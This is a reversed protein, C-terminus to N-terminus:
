DGRSNAAVGKEDGKEDAGIRGALCEADDGDVAGGSGGGPGAGPGGGGDCKAAAREFAERAHEAAHERQEKERAIAAKREDEVMRKAEKETIRTAKLFAVNHTVLVVPKDFLRVCKEQLDTLREYPMSPPVSLFVYDALKKDDADLYYAELEELGLFKGRAESQEASPRLLPVLRYVSRKQKTKSYAMLPGVPRPGKKNAYVM